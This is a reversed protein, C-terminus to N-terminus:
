SSSRTEQAQIFFVPENARVLRLLSPTLDLFFAGIRSQFGDRFRCRRNDLIAVPVRVHKARRVTRIKLNDRRYALSPGCGQLVRYVAKAIPTDMIVLFFVYLLDDIRRLAFVNLNRWVLM